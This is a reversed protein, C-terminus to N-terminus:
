DKYIEHLEVEYIVPTYSPIDEVNACVEYPFYFRYKSGAPMLQLGNFLGAFMSKSIVHVVPDRRGYTKTITDGTLANISLFDFNIRQGAKAKAGSGAQLVEYYFGNESKKLANGKEQVLKSFYEQQIAGAEKNSKEATTRQHQAVLFALYNCLERYTQEDLPQKEGKLTSEFARQVTAQDFSYFGSQATEALSMGMAWSLTDQQNHLLVNESKNGCATATLIAIVAAFPIFIKRM